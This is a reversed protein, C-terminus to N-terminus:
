EVGGKTYPVEGTNCLIEKDECWYDCKITLSYYSHYGSLKDLASAIDGIVKCTQEYQEKNESCGTRNICNECRFIM